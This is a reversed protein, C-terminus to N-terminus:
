QQCSKLWARKGTHWIRPESAREKDEKAHMKKNSLYSVRVGGSMVKASFEVAFPDDGGEPEAEPGEDRGAAHHKAGEEGAVKLVPVAAFGGEGNGRDDCHRGHGDAEARLVGVIDEVTAAGKEGALTELTKSEAHDHGGALDVHRLNHRGLQTAREEGEEGDEGEDALEDTGEDDVAEDVLGAAVGGGKGGLPEKGADREDDGDDDGLAGDVEDALAVDFPGAVGLAPEGAGAGIGELGEGDNLAVNLVFAALGPSGEGGVKCLGLDAAGHNDEEGADHGLHKAKSEEGLGAVKALDDADLGVEAEDEENGADDDAENGIEDAHPGNAAEAVAHECEDAEKEAAEEPEGHADGPADGAVAGDGPEAGGDEDNDGGGGTKGGPRGGVGDAGLDRGQMQTGLGLADAPEKGTGKAGAETQPQRVNVVGVGAVQAGHNAVNEGGKAEETQSSGPEPDGLHLAARWGLNIAHKLELELRFVKDVPM